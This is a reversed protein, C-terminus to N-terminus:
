PSCTLSARLCAELRLVLRGDDTLRFFVEGGERTKEVLGRERLTELAPAHERTLLVDFASGCIALLAEEDRTVGRM